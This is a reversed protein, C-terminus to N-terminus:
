AKKEMVETLKSKLVGADVEQGTLKVVIDATLMESLRKIQSLAQKKEALLAAEGDAIKLSLEESFRKEKEKLKAATDSQAQAVARKSAENADAIAQQYRAFIEEAEAKLQEAKKLNTDIKDNRENLVAVIKPVAYGAVLCFMASFSVVVWFAQSVYFTPDFQPM